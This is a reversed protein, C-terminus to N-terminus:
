LFNVYEVQDHLIPGSLYLIKKTVINFQFRLLFIMNWLSALRLEIQFQILLM